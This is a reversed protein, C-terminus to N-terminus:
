YQHRYTHVYMHLQNDLLLIISLSQLVLSGFQFTLRIIGYYYVYMIYLKLPLLSWYTYM